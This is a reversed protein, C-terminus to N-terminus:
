RSQGPARARVPVQVEGFRVPTPVFPGNYGLYRPPGVVEWEDQNAALWVELTSLGELFTEADYGGRVGVSAFTRPEVDRVSVAGEEGLQGLEQSRYLFAMSSMRPAASGADDYAMEVPATMAIDNRKIHEFLEMFMSRTGESPLSAETVWAARHSPYRKVEVSGVPTLEPWGEPTAASRIM